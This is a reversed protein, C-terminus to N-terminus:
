KLHFIFQRDGLLIVDGDHLELPRSARVYTTQLASKDSILWREGDFEIIAQQKSTITYNTPDTNARNLVVNNDAFDRVPSDLHENDGPILELAFATQPKPKLYPNVTSSIPEAQQQPKNASKFMVTSEASNNQEPKTASQAFQTQCNPCRLSGPRLPYHCNPCETPTTAPQPAPAPNNFVAGEFVPGGLEEQENNASSPRETEEGFPSSAPVNAPEPSNLGLDTPASFEAFPDVQNANNEDLKTKCKTCVTAGPKNPWGCKKCRM